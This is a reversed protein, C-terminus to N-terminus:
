KMNEWVQRTENEFYQSTLRAYMLTNALDVHGLFEQVFQVGVGKSILHTAISHKLAHFHCKDEPLGARRGYEKMLRHLLSRSIPRHQQSPFLIDGAKVRDSMMYKKLLKLDAPHMAHQGGISGKLRDIYITGARLNVDSVRLMGVESARLGHRYALRFILLDRPKDIAAFLRGVEEESFYKIRLREERTVRGKWREQKM